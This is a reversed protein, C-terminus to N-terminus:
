LSDNPATKHFLKDWFYNFVKLFIDATSDRRYLLTMFYRTSGKQNKWLLLETSSMRM